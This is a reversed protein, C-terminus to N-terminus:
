PPAPRGGEPRADDVKPAEGPLLPGERLSKVARELRYVRMAENAFLLRGWPGPDWTGPGVAGIMPWLFGTAPRFRVDDVVVLAPAEGVAAQLAQFAEPGPQELVRRGLAAREPYPESVGVSRLRHGRATYIGTEYFSRREGLGSLLLSEHAAV